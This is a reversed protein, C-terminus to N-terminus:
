HKYPPVPAVTLHLSCGRPIVNIVRMSAELSCAHSGVTDIDDQDLQGNTALSLQGIFLSSYRVLADDQDIPLELLELRRAEMRETMNAGTQWPYMAGGGGGGDAAVGAMMSADLLEGNLKGVNSMKAMLNRLTSPQRSAADSLVSELTNESTTSAVRNLLDQVSADGRKENESGSANGRSAHAPHHGSSPPHASFRDNVETSAPWASGCPTTTETGGAAFPVITAEPPEIADEDSGTPL